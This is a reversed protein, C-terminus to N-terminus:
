GAGGRHRSGSNSPHNLVGLVENLVEDIEVAIAPWAFRRAREAGARGMAAAREPQTLLEVLADAVALHDAADVLRGTVGDVVADLAGEANGALVPLGHAAAELYVIGFGEGALGGAPPRSPMAFVHAEALWRDRESDSVPGLFRVRDSVGQAAALDQLGSRLPGDGLVVWQADPVAALVLPLARIMVDHGKYRDALRAVTLITPSGLPRRDVTAPLDVGAPVIRIQSDAAGAARVLSATFRSIAIVRDAQRVAFAALGPRAGLEEAYAYQVVPVRLLRRIAAAAPATAIHGNLVVRPRARLALAVAHANLAALRAPHPLGIAGARHIRVRQGRDFAGADPHGLTVVSVEDRPLNTSVRHMLLQIGGLAPPYDPTIVLVPGDAAM